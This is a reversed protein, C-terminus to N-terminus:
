KCGEIKRLSSETLRKALKEHINILNELELYFEDIEGINELIILSKKAEEIGYKKIFENAKM